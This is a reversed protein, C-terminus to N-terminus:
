NTEEFGAEKAGLFRAVANFRDIMASHMRDGLKEFLDLRIKLTNGAFRSTWAGRALGNVLVTGLANGGTAGLTGYIRQQMDPTVFRRRGDPAYGMTYSDWQPLLALSDGTPATFGEFGPLDKTLILCDDGIDTTDNVSLATEAQKKNLGTWWQFDKLRAPGFARLYQSALWAAAQEEEVRAFSNGAWAATSVYRLSNSRVSDAGIRLIVGEFALRNLLPKIVDEPVGVADRIEAATRPSGSATLVEQRWHQYNEPPVRRGKQTYRKEWVPDSAPPITASFVTAATERPLLYASLRMAPIRYIRKQKELELFEEATLSPVRAFLSLPGSPHSSYVGIIERLVPGVDKEHANLNQVRCSWQRIKEASNM